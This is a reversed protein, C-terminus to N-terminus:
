VAFVDEGREGLADLVAKGFAQQGNVVIRM